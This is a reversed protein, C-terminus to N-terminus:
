RPENAIEWWSILAQSTYYLWGTARGLVWLSRFVHDKGPLQAANVLHRKEDEFTYALIAILAECFTEYSVNDLLPFVTRSRRPRPTWTL